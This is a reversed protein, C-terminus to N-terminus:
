GVRTLQREIQGGHREIREVRGGTSQMRATGDAQEADLQVRPPAIADVSM